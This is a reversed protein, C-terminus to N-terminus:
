TANEDSIASFPIADPIEPTEQICRAIYMLEGQIQVNEPKTVVRTGSGDEWCLHIFCGHLRIRKIFSKGDLLFVMIKGDRPTTTPRLIAYDGDKIGADIMSTGRIRQPYLKEWEWKLDDPPSVHFPFPLVQAKNAEFKLEKEQM